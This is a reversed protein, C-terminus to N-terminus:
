KLMGPLFAQWNSSGRAGSAASAASSDLSAALLNPADVSPSLESALALAGVVGYLALLSVSLKFKFNRVTKTRSPTAILYHM